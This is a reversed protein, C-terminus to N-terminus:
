APQLFDSGPLLRESERGGDPAPHVPLHPSPRTLCPRAEPRGEPQREGESDGDERLEAGIVDAEPVLIVCPEGDGLAGNRTSGAFGDTVKAWVERVRGESALGGGGGPGEGWQM